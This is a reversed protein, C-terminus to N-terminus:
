GAKLLRPHTTRPLNCEYLQIPEQVLSGFCVRVGENINDMNDLFCRM